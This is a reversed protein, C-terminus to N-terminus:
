IRLDTGLTSVDSVAWTKTHWRAHTSRTIQGIVNGFQLRDDTRLLILTRPKLCQDSGELLREKPRFGLLNIWGLILQFEFVDFPNFVIVHDLM